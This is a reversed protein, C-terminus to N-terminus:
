KDLRECIKYFEQKFKNDIEQPTKNKTKLTTVLNNLHEVIVDVKEQSEESTLGQSLYKRWLVQREVKTLNYTKPVM